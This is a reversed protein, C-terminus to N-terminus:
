PLFLQLDRSTAPEYWLDCWCDSEPFPFLLTESECCAGAGRCDRNREPTGAKLLVDAFIFGCAVELRCRGTWTWCLDLAYACCFFETFLLFTCSQLIIVTIVDFHLVVLFNVQALPPFCVTRSHTQTFCAQTLKERPLPKQRNEPNGIYSSCTMHLLGLRPNQDSQSVTCWCRRIFIKLADM